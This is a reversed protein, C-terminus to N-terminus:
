VLDADLLLGAAGAFFRRLVRDAVEGAVLHEGVLDRAGLLDAGLRECSLHLAAIDPEDGARPLGM